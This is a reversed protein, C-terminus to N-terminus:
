AASLSSSRAHPLPPSMLLHSEACTFPIALARRQSRRGPRGGGGALGSGAVGWCREHGHPPVQGCILYTRPMSRDGASTSSALFRYPSCAPSPHSCCGRASRAPALGRADRWAAQCGLAARSSTQEASRLVMCGAGMGVQCAGAATGAATRAPAVLLRPAARGGARGGALLRAALWGTGGWGRARRLGCPRRTQASRGGPRRGEPPSPPAKRHPWTCTQFGSSRQAAPSAPAAAASRPLWGSAPHTALAPALWGTLWGASATAFGALPAAPLPVACQAHRCPMAAAPGQPARRALQQPHRSGRTCAAVKQARHRVALADHGVQLRALLPLLVNRGAESEVLFPLHSRRRPRAEGRRAPRRAGGPAWPEGAGSQGGGTEPADDAMCPARHQPMGPGCGPKLDPTSPLRTSGPRHPRAPCPGTRQTM